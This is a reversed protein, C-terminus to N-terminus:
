IWVVFGHAMGGARGDALRERAGQTTKGLGPLVDTVGNRRPGNEVRGGANIAAARGGFDRGGAPTDQEIYQPNSLEGRARASRGPEAEGFGALGPGRAATDAPWM